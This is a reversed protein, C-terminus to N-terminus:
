KMLKIYNCSNVEFEFVEKEVCKKLFSFLFKFFFFPILQLSFFFFFFPFFFFQRATCFCYHLCLVVSWVVLLRCFHHCVGLCFGPHLALSLTYELPAKFESKVQKQIQLVCKGWLNHRVTVRFFIFCPKISCM